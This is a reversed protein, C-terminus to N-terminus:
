TIIHIHLNIILPRFGVHNQGRIIRSGHGHWPRVVDSNLHDMLNVILTSFRDLNHRAVNQFAHQVQILGFPPRRDNRGLDFKIQGLWIQVGGFGDLRRDTARAATHNTTLGIRHHRHIIVAGYDVIDIVEGLRDPQFDIRDDLFAAGTLDLYVEHM